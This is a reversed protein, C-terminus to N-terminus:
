KRGWNTKKRLIEIQIEKEGLLAKAEQLQQELEKERNSTKTTALASLGGKLFQERWRYYLTQAIGHSRCVESINAGPAMGELVINMKEESSWNRRGMFVTM